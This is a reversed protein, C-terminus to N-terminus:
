PAPVARFARTGRYRAVAARLYLLHAAVALVLLGAAFAGWGGVGRPPGPEAPGSAAASADAVPQVSGASTFPLSPSFGTDPAMTTPASTVPVTAQVPAQALPTSEARTPLVPVAPLAFGDGSAGASSGGGSGASGGSVDSGSSAPASGAGSASLASGSPGSAAGSAVEAATVSAPAATPASPVLTAATGDTGYRLATVDYTWSGTGPRDTVALPSPCPVAKADATPAPAGNLTCAEVLRSQGAGVATVEYGALDAEPGLPWSVAVVGTGSVAAKVATPATPAVGEALGVAQYPSGSQCAPGIVPSGGCAVVQYTGNLVTATSAPELLSPWPWTCDDGAGNCTGSSVPLAVTLQQPGPAAAPRTSAPTWTV